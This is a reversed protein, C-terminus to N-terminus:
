GKMINKPNYDSLNQGEPVWDMKIANAAITKFNGASQAIWSYYITAAQVYGSPKTWDINENNSAIAFTVYFFLLLFVALTLVVKHKIQTVKLLLVAAVLIVLLILWEM